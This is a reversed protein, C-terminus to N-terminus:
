SDDAVDPVRRPRIAGGVGRFVREVRLLQSISCTFLALQARTRRVEVPPQPASYPGDVIWIM